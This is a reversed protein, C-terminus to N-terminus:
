FFAQRIFALLDSKAGQQDDWLGYERPYAESTRLSIEGAEAILRIQDATVRYYAEVASATPKLYVPESAGIAGPTRGALDLLLPEGDAFIVISELSELQELSSASQMTSWGAMWLYYQYTGSRNVQVPGMHLYDKAYAARGSNDRYLILPRNSFTITVGTLPVLNERVSPTPETSACAAVLLVTVWAIFRNIQLQKCM